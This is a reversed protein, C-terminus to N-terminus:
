APTFMPVPIGDESPKLVLKVKQGIALADLDCDVIHTMMAPGEKLTVYALAFPVEARRVVTYSYIVGEGSAERWATDASFCLPCITRPYWHAKGCASCVRILFRGEAAAAFFPEAEVNAPPSPIPAQSM